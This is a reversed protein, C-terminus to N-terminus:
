KYNEQEKKKMLLRWLKEVLEKGSFPKVIFDDAGSAFCKQIESSQSGASFFAIPINKTEEQSKLIRCIRYGDMGPLYSDVLIVSPLHEFAMALGTEGSEAVLVEFVNELVMRSIEVAERDNDIFLITPKKDVNEAERQQEKMRAENIEALKITRTEDDDWEIKAQIPMIVHFESGPYKIDDSPGMSEVWIRGGHREVIGKVISLGLGTGGGMFKSSDTSHRNTNGVEYFSDFIKKQEVKDIGIGHDKVVIHFESKNALGIRVEITSNDPSFKIANSFLNTFVQQTRMYDGIFKPLDPEFVCEFTISRKQSFQSLDDITERAVASIEMQEPKLRLRKQEIRTVDLINNVVRHLRDAARNISEIMRYVGSDLKGKMTDIIIDSYGKISTLPTKLEHSAISLFNSKLESVRRLEANSRILESNIKAMEINKKEIQDASNIEDTVDTFELVFLTQKKVTDTISFAHLSCIIEEGGKCILITRVDCTNNKVLQERIEAWPLGSGTEAIITEVSTGSLKDRQYKLDQEVNHNAFLITGDDGTVIINVPTHEVIRAMLYLDSQVEKSQKNKGFLM